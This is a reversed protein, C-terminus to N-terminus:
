IAVKHGRFAVCGCRRRALADEVFQVLGDLPGAAVQEVELTGLTVPVPLEFGVGGQLGVVNQKLKPHIGWCRALGPSGLGPVPYLFRGAVDALALSARAAPADIGTTRVVQARRHFRVERQLQRPGGRLLGMHLRGTAANQLQPPDLLGIAVGTDVQAKEPEIVPVLDGADRRFQDQEARAGVEVNVFHGGPSAGNHHREGHQPRQPGLSRNGVAEVELLQVSVLRLRRLRAKVPHDIPKQLDQLTGPEQRAALLGQPLTLLPDQLPELVGVPQPRNERGHEVRDQREVCEAVPGIMRNQDASDLLEFVEHDPFATREPQLGTEGRYPIGGNGGVAQTHGSEAVMRTHSPRGLPQEGLFDPPQAVPRHLAGPHLGATPIELEGVLEIGVDVVRGHHQQRQPVGLRRIVLRLPGGLPARDIPYQGHLGLVAAPGREVFVVVALDQVLNGEGVVVGHEIGGTRVDGAPHDLAETRHPQPIM